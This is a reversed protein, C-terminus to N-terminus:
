CWEECNVLKLRECYFIKFMGPEILMNNIVYSNSLLIIFYNWMLNKSKVFRNIKIDKFNIIGCEVEPEYVSFKINENGDIFTIQFPNNHMVLYDILKDDSMASNKRLIILLHKRLNLYYWIFYLFFIISIIDISSLIACVTYQPASLKFVVGDWFDFAISIIGLTESTIVMITTM